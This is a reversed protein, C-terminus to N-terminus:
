YRTRGIKTKYDKIAYLLAECCANNRTKKFRFYRYIIKVKNVLIAYWRIIGKYFKSAFILRNRYTYYLQFPSNIGTSKSVKHFIISDHIVVINIGKIHARHCFEADENYMFLDENLLGVREFVEKSTAFCCGSVFDTKRNKIIADNRMAYDCLLKRYVGGSSWIRKSNARYIVPAVIQYPDKELANVLPDLFGNDVITDNNIVVVYKCGDKLAKKIGINNGHSYGNNKILIINKVNTLEKIKNTYENTESNDVLYVEAFESSISDYISNLCEVTDEVSKYELIVIGVKSKKM